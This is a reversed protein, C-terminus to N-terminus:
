ISSQLVGLYPPPPDQHIKAVGTVRAPKGTYRIEVRHQKGRRYLIARWGECLLVNYETQKIDEIFQRRAFMLADTIDKTSRRTRLDFTYTRGLLSKSIVKVDLDNDDEFMPVPDVSYSEVVEWPTEQRRCKFLM